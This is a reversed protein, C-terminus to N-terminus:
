CDDCSDELDRNLARMTRYTILLSGAASVCYYLTLSILFAKIVTEMEIYM